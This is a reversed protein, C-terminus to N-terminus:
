RRTETRLALFLSSRADQSTDQRRAEGRKTEMRRSKPFNGLSSRPTRSFSSCGPEYRIHQVFKHLMELSVGDLELVIRERDKCWVIM